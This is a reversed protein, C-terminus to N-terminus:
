DMKPFKVSYFVFHYHNRGYDYRIDTESKENDDQSHFNISLELNSFYKSWKLFKPLSEVLHPTVSLPQFEKKAPPELVKTDSSSWLKQIYTENTEHLLFRM